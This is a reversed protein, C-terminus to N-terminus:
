KKRESIRYVLPGNPTFLVSYERVSSVHDFASRDFLNLLLTRAESWFRKKFRNERTAEVAPVGLAVTEPSGDFQSREAVISALNSVTTAKMTRNGGSPSKGKANVVVAESRLLKLKTVRPLKKRDKAPV